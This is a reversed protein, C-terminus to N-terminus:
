RSRHYDFNRTIPPSPLDCALVIESCGGLAAGNVAPIIPKAIPHNVLGAFGM